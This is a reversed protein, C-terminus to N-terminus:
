GRRPSAITQNLLDCFLTTVVLDATTGPNLGQQKLWNDFKLLDDFSEPGAKPKWMQSRKKAERHVMQAAQPGHKRAIHSDPFRALFTMHLTTIAFEESTQARAATLTPLGIEFIDEFDTVYARAIRDKAAALAMAERLTSTPTAHVDQDDADGLGAPNAYAIAQFAEAADAIDLNMLVFALRRRLTAAADTSQDHEDPIDTDIARALPACLLIIGLNTNCGATDFSAVVARHIREGVKLNPDAIFPAAVKASRRFQDVWMHLDDAHIHVNGPKLATLEAQSADIFLGEMTSQSIITTM